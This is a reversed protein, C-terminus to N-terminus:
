LRNVLRRRGFRLPRNRAIILWMEFSDFGVRKRSSCVFARVTEVGSGVTKGVSKMAGKAGPLDNVGPPEPALDVGLTGGAGPAKSGASLRCIDAFRIKCPHTQQRSAFSIQREHRKTGHTM